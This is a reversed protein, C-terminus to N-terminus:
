KHPSYIMYILSVIMVDYTRNERHQAVAGSCSQIFQKYGTTNSICAASALKMTLTIGVNRVRYIEIGNLENRADSCLFSLNKVFRTLNEKEEPDNNETTITFEM